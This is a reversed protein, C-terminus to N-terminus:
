LKTIVTLVNRPHLKIVEHKAQYLHIRGKNSNGLHCAAVLRQQCFLWTPIAYITAAGPPGRGSYCFCYSGCYSYRVALGLRLRWYRPLILAPNNLSHLHCENSETRRFSRDPFSWHARFYFNLKHYNWSHKNHGM